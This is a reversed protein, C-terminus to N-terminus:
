SRIPKRSAAYAEAIMRQKNRAIDPGGSSGLDFVFSVDAKAQPSALDREVVRRVYEALSVGIEKARRRARRRTESELAIQTRVMM